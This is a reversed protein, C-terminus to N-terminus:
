PKKDLRTELLLADAFFKAAWNLYEFPGYGGWLPHSGKIAGVVAPNPDERRQTRMLFRNMARGAERYREEGTIEFLRWWCISTQADGTLCSWTAAENWSSDFRGALGGDARLKALLADAVRKGAELFRPDELIAGGGIWGEAAYALTHLLPHDNDTLCCEEIWGNPRLRTIAFALNRSAGDKHAADKTVQWARALGYATRTDYVNVGSRAFQSGHRRWAGDDDLAHVLFDGARQASRLFLEDKTEEYARAWGFCVQGTNFIAPTQEFGLVAGQVAGNEMQVESEWQAMRRARERYSAQGSREAHDYFTEIIYGTTEPYPPLWGSKKYTSQYKLTYGRAVGGGQAADQARCLWRMAADLHEEPTGTEHPLGLWDSVTLRILDIM